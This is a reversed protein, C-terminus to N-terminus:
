RTADPTSYVMGYGVGYEPTLAYVQQLPAVTSLQRYAATAAIWTHLELTGVGATEILDTQDRHDFTTLDGSCVLDLFSQDFTPNLRMEAATRRGEAVSLAGAQHMDSFRKLWAADDMTGGRAGDLQYGHVDPTGTGMLPFYHAPHHSLGGTGLILVKKGSGAIFRGVSEGFLRSRQFPLFPPTFVSIFIPIVPYRELSGFLRKLPQSVAHDVTMKYSVAPDFGDARVASLLALADDQPVPVPGPFGGLDDVATCATGICFPPMLSWHFGAFHNNAFFVIYDPDFAEVADRCATIHDALAAEAEPPRPRINVLPSHTLCAMMASSPATM